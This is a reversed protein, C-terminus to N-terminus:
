KSKSVGKGRVAFLLAAASCILMLFVYATIGNGYGTQPATGDPKQAGDPEATDGNDSPAGSNEEDDPKLTDDPNIADDQSDQSKDEYGLAYTSFKDTKFTLTNNDNVVCELKEATGNHVRVIFFERSDKILSQPIAITFEMENKLENLTGVTEGDAKLVISIDLYNSIVGNINLSSLVNEILKVDSGDPEHEADIDVVATIEKGSDVANKVAEFTEESVASTQGNSEATQILEVIENSLSGANEGSVGVSVKDDPKNTDIEPVEVNVSYGCVTCVGNEFTHQTKPIVSGKEIVTNCEACVVDGTYGDASCSADAKNVLVTKHGTKPIVTEQKTIELTCEADKFYEDCEGCYWYEINGDETCSAPNKETKVAYAKHNHLVEGESNQFYGEKVFETVDSVSNDNLFFSGGTIEVSGLPYDEGVAYDSRGSTFNGGHIYVFAQLKEGGDNKNGILMAYKSASKFTGGYVHTEVEGSEGAVYLAYWASNVGHVDCGVTEFKGNHIESYGASTSFAGQVGIVTGDYFYLEPKEANKNNWHSQITYGWNSSCSSCSRGDFLGGYIKTIGENYVSSGTGYFEGSYIECYSEPRNKVVSGGAFTYGRYVGNQIYLSGYNDFTGYATQSASTDVTGNGVVELTGYNTFPRGTFNDSVTITKGNLDLVINKNEGILITETLQMNAGIQVVTKKGDEANEIASILASSDLIGAQLAFVANPLLLTLMLLATLACLVRKRFM